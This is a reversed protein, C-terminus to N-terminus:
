ECRWYKSDLRSRDLLESCLGVYKKEHIVRQWLGVFWSVATQSIQRQWLAHAPLVQCGLDPATTIQAAVERAETLNPTGPTYRAKAFRPTQATKANHSILSKRPKLRAKLEIGVAGVLLKERCTQGCDM